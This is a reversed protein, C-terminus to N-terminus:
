DSKAHKDKRRERKKQDIMRNVQRKGAYVEWADMALAVTLLLLGIWYISRTVYVPLLDRLETGGAWAALTGLFPVYLFAAALRYRTMRDFFSPSTM